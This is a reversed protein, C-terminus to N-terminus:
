NSKKNVSMSVLKNSAINTNFIISMCVTYICIHNAKVNKNSKDWLQNQSKYM